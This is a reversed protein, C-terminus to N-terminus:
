LKQMKKKKKKEQKAKQNTHNEHHHSKSSKRKLKYAVSLKSSKTQYIFLIPITHVFLYKGKGDM